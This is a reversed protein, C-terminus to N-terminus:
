RGPGSVRSLVAEERDSRMAVRGRLGLSRPARRRPEHSSQLDGIPEGPDPLSARLGSLSDQRKRPLCAGARGAPYKPEAFREVFAICDNDAKWSFGRVSPTPVIKM